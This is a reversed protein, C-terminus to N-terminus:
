KKVLSEPDLVMEVTYRRRGKEASCLVEIESGSKRIIKYQAADPLHYGHKEVISKKIAPLLTELQIDYIGDDEFIEEM